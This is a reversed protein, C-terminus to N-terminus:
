HGITSNIVEQIGRHLKKLRDHFHAFFFLDM